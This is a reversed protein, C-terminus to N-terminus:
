TNNLDPLEPLSISLRGLKNLRSQSLTFASNTSTSIKNYKNQDPPCRIPIYDIKIDGQIPIPNKPLDPLSLNTPIIPALKKINNKPNISKIPKPLKTPPIIYSSLLNNPSTSQVTQSPSSSKPSPTEDSPIVPRTPRRKSIKEGELWRVSEQISLVKYILRDIEEELDNIDSRVNVLPSEIKSNNFIDAPLSTTSTSSDKTENTLRNSFKKERLKFEINKNFDNEQTQTGVDIQTQTAADVLLVKKRYFSQLSKNNDKSNLSNRRERRQVPINNKSRKGGSYTNYYKPKMKKNSNNNINISISNLENNYMAQVSLQNQEIRLQRYSRSEFSISKTTPREKSIKHTM